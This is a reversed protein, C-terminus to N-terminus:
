TKIEGIWILFVIFGLILFAGLEGLKTLGELTNVWWPVAAKEIIDVAKETNKEPTNNGMQFSWFVVEILLPLLFILFVVLIAIEKAKM